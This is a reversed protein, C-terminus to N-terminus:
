NNLICMLKWSVVWTAYECSESFRQRLKFHGLIIDVQLNFKKLGTLKNVFVLTCKSPKLINQWCKLFSSCWFCDLCTWKKSQIHMMLPILPIQTFCNNILKHGKKQRLLIFTCFTTPAFQLTFM